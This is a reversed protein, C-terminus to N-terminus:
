LGIGEIVRRADLPAPPMLIESDETCKGALVWLGESCSRLELFLVDFWLIADGM